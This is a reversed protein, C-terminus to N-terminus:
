CSPMGYVIQNQPFKLSPVKTPKVVTTIASIEAGLDISCCSTQCFTSNMNVLIQADFTALSNREFDIYRLKSCNRFTTPGVNVLLNRRCFLADLSPLNLFNPLTTLVGSEANPLPEFDLSVTTLIPLNTFTFSDLTIFLNNGLYVKRLNILGDFLAAPLATLSNHDLYITYLNTLGSFVTSDLTRLKNRSFDINNLLPTNRFLTPELASINHGSFRVDNLNINDKFLAAPLSNLQGSSFHLTRLNRLGVFLREDLSSILSRSVTIETLSVLGSLLFPDICLLGPTESNSFDITQLNIMGRFTKAEVYSTYSFVDIDLIRLIDTPTNVIPPTLNPHRINYRRIADSRNM